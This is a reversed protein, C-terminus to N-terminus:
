RAIAEQVKDVITAPAVTPYLRAYAVPLEAMFAQRTEPGMRHLLFRLVTEVQERSLNKIDM